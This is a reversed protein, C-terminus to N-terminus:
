NTGSFAYTGYKIYEIFADNLALNLSTGAKHRVYVQVTDGAAVAYQVTGSLVTATNSGASTAEISMIRRSSALVDNKRTSLARYGVGNGADACDLDHATVRIIGAYPCVIDSIPATPIPLWLDSFSVTDFSLKTLTDNAVSQPTNMALRLCAMSARLTGDSNLKILVQNGNEDLGSLIVVGSINM